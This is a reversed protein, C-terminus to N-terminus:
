VPLWVDNAAGNTCSYQILQNGKGVGGKITLCKGISEAIIQYGIGKPALRWM